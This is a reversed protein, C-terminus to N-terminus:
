NTGCFQFFKELIRDKSVWEIMRFNMLISYSIAQCEFGELHYSFIVLISQFSFCINITRTITQITFSLLLDLNRLWQWYNLSTQYQDIQCKVKNSTQKEFDLYKLWKLYAHRSHRVRFIELLCPCLIWWFSLQFSPFVIIWRWNLFLPSHEFTASFVWLPNCCGM